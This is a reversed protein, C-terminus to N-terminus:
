GLEAHILYDGQPSDSYDASIMIEVLETHTEYEAPHSFSGRSTQESWSGTTTGSLVIREDDCDVTWADVDRLSWELSECKGRVPPETWDELDGYSNAEEIIYSVLIGKPVEVQEVSRAPATDETSKSM